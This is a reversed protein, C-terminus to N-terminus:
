IPAGLAHVTHASAKVQEIQEHQRYGPYTTSSPAPLINKHWFKTHPRQSTKLLKQDRKQKNEREAKKQGKKKKRESLNSDTNQTNHEASM